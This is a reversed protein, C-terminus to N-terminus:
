EDIEGVIKCEYLSDDHNRDGDVYMAAYLAEMRSEAEVVVEESYTFIKKVVYRM